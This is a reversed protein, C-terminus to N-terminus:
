LGAEEYRVQALIEQYRESGLFTTFHKPCPEYGRRLAFLHGTRADPLTYREITDDGDHLTLTVRPDHLPHAPGFNGKGFMTYIKAM